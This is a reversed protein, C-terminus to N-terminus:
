VEKSEFGKEIRWKKNLFKNMYNRIGDPLIVVCNQGKKLRKAEQLAAWLASGSSGGCLLGEKKIAQQATKFAVEDTTKVWKTVLDRNLVKPIFDYGIGEVEYPEIPGEGSLISGVPDVGIIECQPCDKQMRKAIGTLTGGTGAGLVVMHVTELDELIELATCEYHAMFNAPNSYQDLIHSNPIEKLLKQAVGFHSKPSDYPEKAPTRIIRAGLAELVLQKEQSMKDPMVVIVQYGYVAGVLALGIGMNGSTAEILTDGPSISNNKQAEKVMHWAIRDKVSGGPNFFECKAYINAELNKGLHQLKVLPTKGITQLINEAIMSTREYEM